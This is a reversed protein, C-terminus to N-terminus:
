RIIIGPCYGCNCRFPVPISDETNRYDCVIEQGALIHNTAILQVSSGDFRLITNPVCSHNEWRLTEELLHKTPTRQISGYKATQTITYEDSEYILLNAPIDQEAFLGNGHIPSARITLSFRQPQISPTMM